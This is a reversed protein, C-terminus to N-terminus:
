ARYGDLARLADDIAAPRDSDNTFAARELARLV